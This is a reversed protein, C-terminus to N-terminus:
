AAKEEPKQSFKKVDEDSIGMAKRQAKSAESEPAAGSSHGGDGRAGGNSLSDLFSPAPKSGSVLTFAKAMREAIEGETKAEGAFGDYELQIKDALQKDGKSLTALAKAKFGGFLTAKIEGLEKGFKEEMTKLAAQAADREEILRKKQGDSGGAGELAKIKETATALEEQAKKLDAGKDPNEKLYADVAEKNKAALEEQTFAEVENGDKDFLKAM